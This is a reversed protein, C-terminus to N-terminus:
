EYKANIEKQINEIKNKDAEFHVLSPKGKQMQLYNQAANVIIEESTLYQYQATLNLRWNKKAKLNNESLVKEKVLSECQLKISVYFIAFVAISLCSMLGIILYPKSGKKM